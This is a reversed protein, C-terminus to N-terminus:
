AALFRPSYSVFGALECAMVATGQQYRGTRARWVARTLRNGSRDGDGQKQEVPLGTRCVVRVM